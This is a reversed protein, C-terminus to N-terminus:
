MTLYKGQQFAFILDNTDFRGDCNWDGDSWSATEDTDEYKDRQFIQVLDSSDFVGDLNSDGVASDFVRDVLLAVDDLNLERDGNLDFEEDGDLAARCAEHIDSEDVAGDGTFDPAPSDVAIVFTAHGSKANDRAGDGNLDPYFFGGDNASVQITALGQYGPTPAIQLTTLADNIAALRGRLVLKDDDQGDGLALEVKDGGTITMLGGNASLEVEYDGGDLETDTVRIADSGDLLVAQGGDTRLLGPGSVVPAQNPTEVAFYFTAVESESYVDLGPDFTRNGNVDIFGSGRLDVEYVGPKTFFFSAHSHGGERQWFADAPSVGDATTMWTKVVTEGQFTTSEYVGFVGGEPARVDVLQFRVWDRESQIRPDGEFYRAFTGNDTNEVAIGPFLIEPDRQQPLVWMTEGEAIGTFNWRDGAPRPEMTAPLAFLVAEVPAYERETGDTEDVDVSAHWQGSRFNFSLDVHETTVYKDISPLLQRPTETPHNRYWAATDDYYSGAIVDEDGDGDIDAAVVSFPGSQSRSIVQQGRFSGNGDNEYWAIENDAYSGSVVDTDGDGDLDAVDLGYSAEPATSIVKAQSFTGDNQQEYWVIPAVFSSAVVDIDGDNDLDAPRVYWSSVTDSAVLHQTVYNGQGDNEYWSIPQPEAPTSSGTLVDIDGDSDMDIAIIKNAGLGNGDHIVNGLTFDHSPENLRNEYWVYRDDDNTSAFLDLDGDGDADAADLWRPQGLETDIPNQDGFLGNGLNEYWSIEDANFSSATVVDLDGDGDLDFAGAFLPSGTETGIVQTLGFNGAGDNAAWVVQNASTVAALLDRSGDGNLDVADVVFVGDLDNAIVSLDRFRTDDRVTDNRVWLLADDAYSAVLLDVDGDGDVDAPSGATPSSWNDFLVTQAAFQGGGLNEHIAVKDDNTSVSILDLDADNDWDAARLRFPGGVNDTVLQAQSNFKGQGDNAYWVVRNGYYAGAAVDQDGDGDLDAIEIALPANLDNSITERTFAAGNATYVAVSNDEGFEATVIEPIDDGDLDAADVSFLGDVDEAIVEDPAFSGNGQNKHWALRKGSYSGSVIDTNGDGDVDVTVIRTIGAFETVSEEDAFTGDGNNRIVIIGKSSSSAVVDLDSDGDIDSALTMGYGVDDTTLAMPDGFEGDGNSQYYLVNPGAALLDDDGDFDIDNGEVYIVENIGDQILMPDSWIPTVTLLKRRELEEYTCRRGLRISGCHKEENKM